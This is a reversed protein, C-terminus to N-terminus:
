MKIGVRTGVSGLWHTEDPEHNMFTWEQVNSQQCGKGVRREVRVFRGRRLERCLSGSLCQSVHIVSSSQTHIESRPMLRSFSHDAHFSM